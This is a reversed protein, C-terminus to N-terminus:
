AAPRDEPHGGKGKRGKKPTGTRLGEVIDAQGRAWGADWRAAFLTGPPYPNADRAAGSHGEDYGAEEAAWEAHQATAKESPKQDDTAGFLEAQTGLPKGMWESYRSLNRFRQAITASEMRSLVLAEDMDALAVGAAKARKRAAKRLDRAKELQRDAEVCARLHELFQEPEITPPGNTKSKRAM